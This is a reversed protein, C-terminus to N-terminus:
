IAPFESQALKMNQVMERLLIEINGETKCYSKLVLMENSLLYTVGCYRSNLENLKYLIETDERDIVPKRVIVEASEDEYFILAINYLVDKEGEEFFSVLTYGEGSEEHIDEKAFGMKETHEYFKKILIM